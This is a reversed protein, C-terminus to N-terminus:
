EINVKRIEIYATKEMSNRRNILKASEREKKLDKDIFKSSYLNKNKDYATLM